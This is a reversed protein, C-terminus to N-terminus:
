VSSKAPAYKTKSLTLVWFLIFGAGFPLMGFGVLTLVNAHDINSYNYRSHLIIDAPLTSGYLVLAIGFACLIAGLLLILIRKPKM